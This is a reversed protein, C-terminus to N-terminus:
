EGGCLALGLLRRMFLNRRGVERGKEEKKEKEEKKRWVRGKRRGRTL